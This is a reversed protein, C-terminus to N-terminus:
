EFNLKRKNILFLKNHYKTNFIDINLPITEKHDNIKM